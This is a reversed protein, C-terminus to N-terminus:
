LADELSVTVAGQRLVKLPVTSADVVTSAAGVSCVGDVVGDVLLVLAPDLDEMRYPTPGAHFNASPGLIPVGVRNVLGLATKHNPMRLGVADGGGRIPSYILNKKCPAVITVAGPWYKEMLHRVIDTPSDYYSLAMAISSVLVPMAQTPPRRRLSFLRDVSASADIRCGIGFATDTPYIVIGGGKLIAVAQAETVTKGKSEM